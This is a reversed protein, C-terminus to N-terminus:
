ILGARTCAGIKSLDIEVNIIIPLLAFDNGTGTSHGRAIDGHIAGMKMRRGGQPNLRKMTFILNSTTMIVM